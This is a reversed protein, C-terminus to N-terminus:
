LASSGVDALRKARDLDVAGDAIVVAYRNTMTTDRGFTVEESFFPAPGLCGFPQSRAFWQPPHQANSPADVMVVSSTGEVEDHKGTFAMWPARQGRLEEGTAGDPGLVTGGTFSRPGRWFLGGYGADPRGETTPSGIVIDEGSVNRMSTEFTLTWASQEAALRATLQRSEQVVETGDQRFWELEHGFHFVGEVIEARDTRRHRASGNNDLQVYGRGNRFSPGGWFNDAGFHPLSWAIGVHWYHDHPRYISVLRGSPTRLPHLYPRPSEYQAAGSQYVYTFLETGAAAVSVSSTGDDQYTLDSM